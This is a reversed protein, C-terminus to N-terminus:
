LAATPVDLLVKWAGATLEQASDVTVSFAGTDPPSRNLAM